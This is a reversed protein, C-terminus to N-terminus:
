QLLHPAFAKVFPDEKDQGLLFNVWGGIYESRSLKGDKDLDLSVFAAQVLDPQDYGFCHMAATMESKTIFNDSDHDFM